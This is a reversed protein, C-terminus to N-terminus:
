LFIPPAEPELDPEGEVDLTVRIATKVSVAGCGIKGTVSCVVGDCLYAKNDIFEYSLAVKRGMFARDELGTKVRVKMCEFAGNGWEDYLPYM